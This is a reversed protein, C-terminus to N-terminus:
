KLDKEVNIHVYELSPICSHIGLIRANTYIVGPFPSHHPSVYYVFVVTYVCLILCHLHQSSSYFLTGFSLSLMYPPPIIKCPTTIFPICHVVTFMFAARSCSQSYLSIYVVDQLAILWPLFPCPTQPSLLAFCLFNLYTNRPPKLFPPVCVSVLEYFTKSFLKFTNYM